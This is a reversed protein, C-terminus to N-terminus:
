AIACNGPAGSGSSFYSADYGLSIYKTMYIAYNVRADTSPNTSQTHMINVLPLLIAVLETLPISKNRIVAWREDFDFETIGTERVYNYIDQRYIDMNKANDISEIFM